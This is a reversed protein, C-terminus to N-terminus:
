MLFIARQRRSKRPPRVMVKLPFPRAKTNIDNKGYSTSAVRMATIELYKSSIGQGGQKRRPKVREHM